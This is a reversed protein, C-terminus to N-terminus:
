SLEVEGLDLCIRVYQHEGDWFKQAMLRGTGTWECEDRKVSEVLGELTRIIRHKDPVGDYWRWGHHAFLPEVDEAAQLILESTTQPYEENM